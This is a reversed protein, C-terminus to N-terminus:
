GQGKLRWVREDFAKQPLLVYISDKKYPCSENRVWKALEEIGEKRSEAAVTRILNELSEIELGTCDLVIIAKKVLEKIREESIMGAGGGSEAARDDRGLSQESEDNGDVDHGSLFLLIRDAGGLVM